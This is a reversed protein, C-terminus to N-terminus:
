DVSTTGTTERQVLARAWVMRMREHNDLRAIQLADHMSLQGTQVAQQIEDPLRLLSLRRSVQGQTCGHQEAIKRQSRGADAAAQFARAQEIPNLPRHTSDDTAIVDIQMVPDDCIGDRRVLVPVSPETTQAQEGMLVQRIAALRRHGSLLVWRYGALAETHQPWAAAVRDAPMVELPRNLGQTAISRGLEDLSPLTTRLNSPHPAIESVPVMTLTSGRWSEGWGTATTETDIRHEDTQQTIEGSDGRLTPPAGTIRTPDGPTGSSPPLSGDYRTHATLPWPAKSRM